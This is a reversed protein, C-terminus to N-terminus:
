SSHRKNATLLALKENYRSKLLEDPATKAAMKLSDAAKDMRGIQAYSKALALHFNHEVPKLRLAARYQEISEKYAGAQYAQMGLNFHYYPNKQNFKRVQAHYKEAEHHRGMREYLVALNSMAVLERKDLQLAQHYVDLARDYEGRVALTVGLNAWAFATTADHELAEHFCTVAEDTRGHTLHDVGRNNFFHAVARDDSVIRGGLVIRNVQPFLDVIYTQSGIFVATNAHGSMNVINGIQTWTPVSDVERFRADLGLHRAMAIMLFTFSICNGGRKNFTDRATRTEPVYTFHLANEQFVIRVLNQLRTLNDNSRDLNQDLFEKMEDSIKLPDDGSPVVPIASQSFWLSLILAALM